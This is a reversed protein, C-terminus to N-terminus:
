GDVVDHPISAQAFPISVGPGRQSPTPSQTVPV